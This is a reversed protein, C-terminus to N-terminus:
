QVYRRSPRELAPQTQTPPTERNIEETVTRVEQQPARAGPHHQGGQRPDKSESSMRGAQTSATTPVMVQAVSEVLAVM